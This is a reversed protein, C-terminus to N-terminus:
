LANNSLNKQLIGDGSEAMHALEPPLISALAVEGAGVSPLKVFGPRYTAFVGPSDGDHSYGARSGTIENFSRVPCVGRCAQAARKYLPELHRISAEQAMSLRQPIRSSCGGLQNLALLGADM